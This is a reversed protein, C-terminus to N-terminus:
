GGYRCFRRAQHLANPLHEILAEKLADKMLNGSIHLLTDGYQADIGM